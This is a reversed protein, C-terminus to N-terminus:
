KKFEDDSDQESGNTISALPRSTKVVMDVNLMRKLLDCVSWVLFLRPHHPLPDDFACVM